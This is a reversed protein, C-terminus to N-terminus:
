VEQAINSNLENLKNEFDIKQLTGTHRWLINSDSDEIIFTPISKINYISLIDSDVEDVDIDIVRIKDRIEDVITHMTRCPGCWTASFFLLKM